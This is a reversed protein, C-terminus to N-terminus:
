ISGEVPSSGVCGSRGTSVLFLAVHVHFLAVAAANWCTGGAGAQGVPGDTKQGAYWQYPVSATVLAAPGVMRLAFCM